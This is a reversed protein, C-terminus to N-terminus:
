ALTAWAGLAYTAILVTGPLNGTRWGLATVAFVAAVVVALTAVPHQRRIILALGPVAALVVLLPLVPDAYGTTVSPDPAVSGTVNLVAVGCGLAM